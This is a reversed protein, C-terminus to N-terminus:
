IQVQTIITIFFLLTHLNYDFEKKNHNLEKSVLTLLTFLTHIPISMSKFIMTGVLSAIQRLHNSDLSISYQEYLELEYMWLALARHYHGNNNLMVAQYRLSYHYEANTPGLLRERILLAETHMNDINSQIEEIQDLTQCEHRNDFVEITTSRLAKPLDHIIRLELARYFHKFAREISDDDDDDQFCVIASGLLEETEIQELLSCKPYLAQVLDVRKNEAAWMLPSMQDRIARFNRAGRNLLFEVIERVGCNVADYLSSRGDKSCMNVDCNLEDVLYAVMSLHKRSVSLMLNTENNEKAIHIDAGNEILYRAMDINGNYCAGRLPTSNTKTTHNVDAGHEVLLKVMEFNNKAAVTWLLSVNLLFQQTGDADKLIINNLIELDPKFRHILMTIIGDHGNLYAIMMLTCKQEGIEDYVRNLYLHPNPVTSLYIEFSNVDGQRVTSLLIDDLEM